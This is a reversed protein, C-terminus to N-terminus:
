YFTDMISLFRGGQWYVYFSVLVYVSLFMCVSYIKAKRALLLKEQLDDSKSSKYVGYIGNIPFFLLAAILNVWIRFTINNKM